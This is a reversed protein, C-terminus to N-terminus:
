NMGPVEIRSANIGFPLVAKIVVCELKRLYCNIDRGYYSQCALSCMIIICYCCIPTVVVRLRCAYCLGAHTGLGHHPVSNSTRSRDNYVCARSHICIIPTRGWKRVTIPLKARESYTHIDDVHIYTM